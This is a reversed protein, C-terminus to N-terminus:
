IKLENIFDAAGALPKDGPALIGDCDIFFIKKADLM